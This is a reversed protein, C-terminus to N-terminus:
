PNMWSPAALGENGGGEFFETERAFEGGIELDAHISAHIFLANRAKGFEARVV